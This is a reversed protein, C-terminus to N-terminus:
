ANEIPNLDPSNGPWELVRINSDELFKTVTKSRHAPAGDQMFYDCQHIRWFTLLHDKLVDIYNSGRITNKSLFYLGARGLNGRFAGWVMVSEPHKVSKVTFKPDYRSATSPRRVIKSVERVLTFTNEDSFMVKRWETATWHYKKCFNFRKKRM